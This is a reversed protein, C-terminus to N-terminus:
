LFTLPVALHLLFFQNYISPVTAVIMTNSQAILSPLIFLFVHTIEFKQKNTHNKKSIIPTLTPPQIKTVLAQFSSPINKRTNKIRNIQNINLSFVAFYKRVPHSIPQNTVWNKECQYKVM